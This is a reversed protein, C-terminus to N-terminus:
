SARNGYLWKAVYTVGTQWNGFNAFYGGDTAAPGQTAGAQSVYKINGPNFDTAGYGATGLSSDVQM